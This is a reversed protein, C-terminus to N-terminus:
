DNDIITVTASGGGGLTWGSSPRSLAVGFEEQGERRRDNVITISVTAQWQGPRFTVTGSAAKFDSKARASGNVTAYRVTATGATTTRELTLTVRRAGENVSYAANQFEITPPVQSVVNRIFRNISSEAVNVYIGPYDPLACGYGWSVIGVLETFGQGRDITLPGGSDARCSDQGAKGACIMRPTIESNLSCSGAVTPIYPIDVQHLEMPYVPKPWTYSGWGTVRLITGPTTPQTSAITAFDIGSVPEALEWVAVDYDFSNRKYSPHLTVRAVDVRQGSGDLRRTGILVQVQSAPNSIDESCHAATVVFREAVLTGGCFQAQFDDSIRKAMLGVQFPHVSEEAETGGIIMPKVVDSPPQQQNAIHPQFGRPKMGNAPDPKSGAGAPASVLISALALTLCRKVFPM